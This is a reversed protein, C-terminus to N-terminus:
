AQARFLVLQKGVSGGLNMADSSLLSSVIREHSVVVVVLPFEQAVDARL